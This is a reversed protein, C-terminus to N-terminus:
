LLLSDRERDSALREDVVSLFEGWIISGANVHVLWKDKKAAIL